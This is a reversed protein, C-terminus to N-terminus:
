RRTRTRADRRLAAWRKELPGDACRRDDRDHDDSVLRHPVPRHQALQERRGPM